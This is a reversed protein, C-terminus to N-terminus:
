RIKRELFSQYARLRREVDRLLAAGEVIQPRTEAGTRGKFTTARTMMEELDQTHSRDARGAIVSARRLTMLQAHARTVDQLTGAEFSNAIEELQDILGPLADQYLRIRERRTLETRNVYITAAVSTIAGVLVAALTM